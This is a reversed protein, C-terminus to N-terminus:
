FYIEANIIENGCNINLFTKTKNSGIKKENLYLDGNIIQLVDGPLGILRKIYDTRNDNPTKFVIM